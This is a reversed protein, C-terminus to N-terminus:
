GIISMVPQDTRAPSDDVDNEGPGNEQRKWCRLGCLFKLAFASGIILYYYGYMAFQLKASLELLQVLVITILTQIVLALFITVGFVLGTSDPKIRIAIQAKAITVVANYIISFAIYTLYAIIISKTNAMLVLDAGLALAGIALGLEGWRNWNVGTMRGFFYAGLAGMSTCVAEVAGNMMLHNNDPDSKNIQLYGGNCAAWWLVFKYIKIQEFAQLFDEYLLKFGKKVNYILSNDTPTRNEAPSTRNFYISEEVPPLSIAWFCSIILIGLTIEALNLLELGVWQFLVESAVGSLARGTLYAARTYGTVEQYHSKDVKAYIYTYYAVECAIYLGYLVEVLQIAFVSRCFILMVYLLIGALSNLVIIPKYRLMDTVLFVVFLSIMNSYVSIPYIEINIQNDTFNMPPTTLFRTIYPELPRLEKLVGYVCLLLALKRWEEM